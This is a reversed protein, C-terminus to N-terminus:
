GGLISDADAQAQVLARPDLEQEAAAYGGFSSELGHEDDEHAQGQQSPTDNTLLEQHVAYDHLTGAQLRNYVQFRERAGYILVAALIALTVLLLILLILCAAILLTPTDLLSM